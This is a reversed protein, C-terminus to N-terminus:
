PKSLKRELIQRFYDPSFGGMFCEYQLERGLEISECAKKIRYEHRTKNGGATLLAIRYFAPWFTADKVAAETFFHDAEKIAGKHFYYEGRLFRIIAGTNRKELHTLVIDASDFDQINL